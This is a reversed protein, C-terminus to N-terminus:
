KKKFNRIIEPKTLFPMMGLHDLKKKLRQSKPLRSFGKKYTINALYVYLDGLNEYALEYNPNNSIAKELAMRAEDPQGRLLYLVSLNNYPESLEPFEETFREFNEIANNIQLKASSFNKSHKIQNIIAFEALLVANLYRWQADRPTKQLKYSIIQKAEKLRGLEILERANEIDEAVQTIQRSAKTTKVQAECLNLFSFIAFVFLLKKFNKNLSLNHFM